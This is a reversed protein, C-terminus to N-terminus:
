DAGPAARPQNAQRVKLPQLPRASRSQVSLSVAAALNGSLIEVLLLCRVTGLPIESDEAAQGRHLCGAAAADLTIRQRGTEALSPVMFSSGDTTSFSKRAAPLLGHRRPRPPTPATRPVRPFTAAAGGVRWAPWKTPGTRGSPRAHVETAHYLPTKTLGGRKEQGTNDANTVPSLRSRSRLPRAAAVLM